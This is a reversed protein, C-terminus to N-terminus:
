CLVSRVTPIRCERHVVPNGDEADDLANESESEGSRDVRSYLYALLGAAHSYAARAAYPRM